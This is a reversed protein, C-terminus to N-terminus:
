LASRDIQALLFASVETVDFPWAYRFVVGPHRLRAASVAAPIEHEAHAGGPTMMPTVVIVEDAGASQAADLAEDVSPACFENFGVVVAGGSAQRLAAALAHSATYFPDNETTRPWTRMKTELAMYRAQVEGTSGAV